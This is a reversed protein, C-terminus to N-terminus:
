SGCWTRARTASRAREAEVSRTGGCGPRRCSTRPTPPRASCRTPSPSSCAATPSSRTTADHDRSAVAPRSAGAAQPRVGRRLRRVRHRARRQRPHHLERVRHGRHARGAAADGLQDHLRAVMEDTVTPPTESMAEAYELVERELPTFVDSERWRPIERAKDVDLGENHAEFYNFDLCWTCGVQAVRGGHARVVEPERRLRGM